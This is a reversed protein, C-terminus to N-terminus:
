SGEGGWVADLVRVVDTSATKEMLLRLHKAKLEGSTSFNLSLPIM